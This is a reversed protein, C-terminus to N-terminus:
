DTFTLDPLTLYAQILHDILDPVVNGCASLYKVSQRVHTNFKKTNYLYNSITLQLNSVKARLAIESATSDMHAKSFLIKFCLVGSPFEIQCNGDTIIVQYEHSLLGLQLYAELTLSNYLFQYIMYLDKVHQTNATMHAIKSKEIDSVMM